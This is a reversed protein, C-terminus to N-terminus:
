FFINNASNPSQSLVNFVLEEFMETCISARFLTTFAWYSKQTTLQVVTMKYLMSVEPPRKTTTDVKESRKSCISTAIFEEAGLCLIDKGLLIETVSPLRM